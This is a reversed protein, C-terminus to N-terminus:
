KHTPIQVIFRWYFCTPTHPWFIYYVCLVCRHAGARSLSKNLYKKYKTKKEKEKRPQKVAHMHRQHDDTGTPIIIEGAPTGPAEPFSSDFDRRQENGNKKRIGTLWHFFAISNIVISHSM